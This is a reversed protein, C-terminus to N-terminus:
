LLSSFLRASSEKYREIIPRGRFEKLIVENSEKLDDLFNRTLCETLSQDYVFACIEFDLNFSRLDMNASGVSALQHDILLIKAHLTGKMYRFIKVGAQLLDEFYSNMAWYTLKQEPIGQVVLQVDLGSLASTKLAMILSEDPIFYPTEIYVSHKANSIAIFFGQITSSWNSDPGSGLIQVPLNQTINSPPYYCAGTYEQRTVFYWDNLFTSQLTHVAEGELKLHTDRWFGLKSDRSLYEDGINLGGMFGTRGDVVVIKRHYRLNLKSTLYPFRIPFFWEAQIGAERMSKIFGGSISLSGMGDLLVRVEVGEAVKRTLIKLVDEGIEDDKFIYYSLHIHHSAGELANFLAQFKEGGNLLIEIQNHVTIPAFGMNLLLSAFKVESETVLNTLFDSYKIETQQQLVSSELPNTPIHKCSFLQTQTKRGFVIYLIFGLLPLLGLIFLWTITNGPARNELLIVKGLIIVQLLNIIALINWIM